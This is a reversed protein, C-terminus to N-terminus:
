IKEKNIRENEIQFRTKNKKFFSNTQSRKYTEQKKKIEKTDEKM